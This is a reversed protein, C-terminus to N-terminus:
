QVRKAGPKNVIQEPLPEGVRKLVVMEGAAIFRRERHLVEFEGPFNKEIDKEYEDL